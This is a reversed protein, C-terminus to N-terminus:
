LRSMIQETHEGLEPGRERTFVVGSMNLPPNLVSLSEGNDLTLSSMLSASEHSKFFESPTAVVECMLDKNELFSKWASASKGKFIQNMRQRVAEGLKGSAFAKDSLEPVELAQVLAQWFKPELAGVSVYRDDSTQYVNYCPYAGCLIHHGPELDKGGLQAQAHAMVLLSVSNQALSVDIYAGQGTEKRRYLAALIQIVAPYSGGAIDAVQVPLPGSLSRTMGLVGMRALYNLDHGARLHSGDASSQGYGSISCIILKPFKKMLTEPSGIMKALVGPRFSEVLVDTQALLKLVKDKADTQKLDLVISQKGRNLAHFMASNGDQALPAFARAYDGVGPEEVKIVTAGLDRLIQTAWPGPLLRSLDVVRIGELVM